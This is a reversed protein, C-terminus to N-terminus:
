VCGIAGDIAPDCKVTIESVYPAFESWTRVRRLKIRPRATAPPPMSAAASLSRAGVRQLSLACATPRRRVLAAYALRLPLLCATAMEVVRLSRLRFRVSAIDAQTSM